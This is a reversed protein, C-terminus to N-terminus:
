SYTEGEKQLLESCSFQLNRYEDKDITEEILYKVNNNSSRISSVEINDVNGAISISTTFLISKDESESIMISDHDQSSYKSQNKEQVLISTSATSLILKKESKSIIVQHINM